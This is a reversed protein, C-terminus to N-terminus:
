RARNAATPDLECTKGDGLHKPVAKRTNTQRAQKCTSFVVQSATKCRGVRSGEREKVSCLTSM